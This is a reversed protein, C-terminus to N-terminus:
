GGTTVTNHDEESTIPFFERIENCNYSNTLKYDSLEHTAVCQRGIVLIRRLSGRWQHSKVVFYRSVAGDQLASM